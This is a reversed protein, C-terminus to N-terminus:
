RAVQQREAQEKALPTAPRNEIMLKRGGSMDIQILSQTAPMAPKGTAMKPCGGTSGCGCGKKNRSPWWARILYGVAGAVILYVAIDQNLM